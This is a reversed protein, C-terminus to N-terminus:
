RRVKKRYKEIRNMTLRRNYGETKWPSTFNKEEWKRRNFTFLLYDKVGLIGGHEKEIYLLLVVILGIPILILLINELM